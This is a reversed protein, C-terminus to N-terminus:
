CLWRLDAQLEQAMRSEAGILQEFEASTLVLADCSLPLRELPWHLLRERQPGEALDDILLLDLDSGVSATGRSYSGFLGVRRLNPHLRQLDEAWSQTQQLVQEASPWRLVSQTLSRVPMASLM